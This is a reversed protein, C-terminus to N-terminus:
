RPLDPFIHQGDAGLPLPKVWRVASLSLPAYLHPFLDGGRSPEYRLAQGLSDGDIAILLLNDQGSFHKKATERVQKATSFHIYGDQIDVPAGEFSGAKEAERWLFAPCIKYIIHM